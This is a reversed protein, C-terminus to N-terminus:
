MDERKIRESRLDHNVMQRYFQSMTVPANYLCTMMYARIDRIGDRNPNEELCDIVYDLHMENLQLLRKKVDDPDVATKNVTLPMTQNGYMVDHILLYLEHYYDQKVHLM